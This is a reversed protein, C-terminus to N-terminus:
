LPPTNNGTAVLKLKEKRKLKKISSERAMADEKNEFSELHVIRVPRRGRTYKAGAGSNHALLRKEVDSTWGTYLTGDSCRVIYVYATM